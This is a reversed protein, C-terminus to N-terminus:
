QALQAIRLFDFSGGPDLTLHTQRTSHIVINDPYHLFASFMSKNERKHTEAIDYSSQM